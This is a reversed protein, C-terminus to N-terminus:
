RFVLAQELSKRIAVVDASADIIRVREPEAKARELYAPSDYFDAARIMVAGASTHLRDDLPDRRLEEEFAALRCRARKRSSQGDCALADGLVEGDKFAGPEHLCSAGAAFDAEGDAAVAEILGSALHRLDRGTPVLAERRYLLDGFRCM